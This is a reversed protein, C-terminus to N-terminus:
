QATPCCLTVTLSCVHKPVESCWQMHINRCNMETVRVLSGVMRSNKKRLDSGKTQDPVQHNVNAAHLFFSFSQECCHIGMTEM